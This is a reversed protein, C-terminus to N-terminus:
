PRATAAGRAELALARVPCFRVCLDCGICLEDRCTLDLRVM